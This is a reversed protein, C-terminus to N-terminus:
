SSATTRRLAVPIVLSEPCWERKHLPQYLKGANCASHRQAAHRHARSVRPGIVWPGHPTSRVRRTSGIDLILRRQPPRATAAYHLHRNLIAGSPAPELGTAFMSPRAKSTSM